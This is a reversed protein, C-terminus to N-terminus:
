CKEVEYVAQRFSWKTRSIRYTGAPVFPGGFAGLAYQEFIRLLGHPDEINKTQDIILPILAVGDPEGVIVTM